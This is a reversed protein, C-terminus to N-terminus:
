QYVRHHTRGGVQAPPQHRHLLPSLRKVNVLDPAEISMVVEGEGPSGRPACREREEEVREEAPPGTLISEVPVEVLRQEM